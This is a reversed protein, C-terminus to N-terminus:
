KWLSLNRAWPLVSMKTSHALTFIFFWSRFVLLFNSTENQRPRHFTYWSSSWSLHWHFGQPCGPIFYVGYQLFHLQKPDPNISELDPDLMEHQISIQIRIWCKMASYRDLDPDLTKHGFYPFFKCSFFNQYKKILFQLKSIGLGGYLVELSCSYGKARLFSCRASWFM